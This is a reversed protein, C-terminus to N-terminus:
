IYQQTLPCHLFNHQLPNLMDQGQMSISPNSSYRSKCVNQGYTAAVLPGGFTILDVNPQDLDMTPTTSAANHNIPNPTTTLSLPHLGALLSVILNYEHSKLYESLMDPAASDHNMSNEKKSMNGKHRIRCLVWDDLRMSGATSRSPHSTDPLRYETMVWDTRLGRPPKGKYFVLGKKVGIKRRSGLSSWIPQDTGTAKWYGSAAARNPRGGKPYKRDRPSFFYLEEEDGFMSNRPLDWPDFTYLHIDTIVNPPLPLSKMKRQLYFSILEEDSPHFRIGPPYQCRNRIDEMCLSFFLAVGAQSSM